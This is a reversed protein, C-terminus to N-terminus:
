FVTPDDPGEYIRSQAGLQLSVPLLFIARIAYDSIRKM